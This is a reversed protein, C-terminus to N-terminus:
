NTDRCLCYNIHSPYSSPFNPASRSGLQGVLFFRSTVFGGTAHYSHVHAFQQAVCETRRRSGQTAAWAQNGAGKGGRQKALNRKENERWLPM